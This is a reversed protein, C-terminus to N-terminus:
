GGLRALAAEIRKCIPTPGFPLALRRAENLYPRARDARRALMWRLGLVMNVKAYHFGEPDFQPNARVLDMMRDIERLATLKLRVLCVLNRLIVEL